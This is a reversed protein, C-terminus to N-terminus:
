KRGAPWQVLYKGAYQVDMSDVTVAWVTDGRIYLNPANPMGNYPIEAPFKVVGLWEGKADMVDFTAQLPPMWVGRKNKVLPQNLHIWTRGDGPMIIRGFEPRTKPAPGHLAFTSLFDRQESSLEIPPRQRSLKVARGDPRLILITHDAPCGIAVDGNPAATWELKPVWPRRDDDWFGIAHERDTVTTCSGYPEVPVWSTDAYGGDRITIFAPQRNRSLRGPDAALGVWLGGDHGYFLADEHYRPKGLPLPWTRVGGRHDFVAIKMNGIDQVALDGSDSVAMARVYEVEAPGRGRRAIKRVFRGNVSYERIGESLDYVFARHGQGAIAWVRAFTVELPGDAEGIRDVLRLRATDYVPATSHVVVTDGVRSRAHSTVQGRGNCAVLVVSALFM